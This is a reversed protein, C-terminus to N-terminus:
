ILKASGVGSGVRQGFWQMNTGPDPAVCAKLRQRMRAHANADNYRILRRLLANNAIHRILEKSLEDRAFGLSHKAFDVCDGNRKALIRVNNPLLRHDSKYALMATTCTSAFPM